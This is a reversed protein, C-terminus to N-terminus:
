IYKFEGLTEGDSIDRYFVCSLLTVVTQYFNVHSHFIELKITKFLFSVVNRHSNEM